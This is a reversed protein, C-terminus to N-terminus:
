ECLTLMGTEKDVKYIQNEGIDKPNTFVSSFNDYFYDNLTYLAVYDFDKKLENQWQEATKTETYEDGDYFPEGISWWANNRNPRIGFKYILREFGQTEQAIFWVESEGDTVDLTKDIIETYVDRINYSARVTSRYMYALMIKVPACLCMAIVITSCIIMENKVNCIDIILTIVIFMYIGSFDINMYRDFSALGLAEGKSFKYMYSICLGFVFIITMIISTIYVIRKNQKQVNSFHMAIFLLVAIAIFLVVYSIEINFNNLRIGSTKLAYIFNDMVETRYTDDKGSIVQLLNAFDYKASFAEKAGFRKCNITWLVKPVIVSIIGCISAKFIKNGFKNVLINKIIYAVLFSIAFLLGADKALVLMAMICYLSVSSLINDVDMYLLQLLGACILFGLFPDIYLQYYVGNYFTFPICMIAGSIALLHLPKKFTLKSAVPVIFSVALTYYSFYALWEVFIKGTFIYNIKELFYQFLSMGPPYTKFLSESLPNTGFDDLTTMVKVIDGWHSFEDWADFLKGYIAILFVLFLVIFLVFGPTITNNILERINKNKIAKSITVIYLVLSILLVLYTSYKLLGIIGLVFSLLVISTCTIPLVEEYKTKFYASSFISGSSIVLLFVLISLFEM